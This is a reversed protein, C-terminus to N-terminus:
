ISAVKKHKYHGTKILKSEDLNLGSKESIRKLHYKVVEQIREPKM